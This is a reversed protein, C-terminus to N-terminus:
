DTNGTWASKSVTNQKSIKYEKGEKVVSYMEIVVQKRHKVEYVFNVSPPSDPEQISKQQLLTFSLTNGLAQNLQEFKAIRAEDSEGNHMEESYHDSLNTFDNRSIKQMFDEVFKQAQVPDPIEHTCSISVLSIFLITKLILAHNKMIIKKPPNM